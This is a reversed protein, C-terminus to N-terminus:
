SVDKLQKNFREIIFSIQEDSLEQEFDVNYHALWKKMNEDSIDLAMLEKYLEDSTKTNLKKGYTFRVKGNQDTIVLRSIVDEEYAVEQM